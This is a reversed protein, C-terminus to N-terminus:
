DSEVELEELQGVSRLGEQSSFERLPRVSCVASWQKRCGECKRFLIFMSQDGGHRKDEHGAGHQTGM